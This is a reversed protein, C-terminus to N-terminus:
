EFYADVVAAAAAEASSAAAKSGKAKRKRGSGLEAMAKTAKANVGLAKDTWGVLLNDQSPSLMVTLDKLMPLTISDPPKKSVEEVIKDLAAKGFLQTQDDDEWLCFNCLREKVSQLM